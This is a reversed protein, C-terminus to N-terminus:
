MIFALTIGILTFGIAGVRIPIAANDAGVLVTAGLGFLWAISGFRAARLFLQNASEESIEDTIWAQKAGSTFTYGLGWVIQALIIPLFAPFLGRRPLGIGNTYLGHHHLTATFLGGCR